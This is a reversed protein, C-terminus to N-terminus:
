EEEVTFGASTLRVSKRIFELLGAVIRQELLVALQDTAFRPLM